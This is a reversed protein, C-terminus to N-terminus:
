LNQHCCRSEAWDKQLDLLINPRTWFAHQTQSLFFCFVKAGNSAQSSLCAHTRILFYNTTCDSTDTKLIVALARRGISAVDPSSSRLLFNWWRHLASPHQQLFVRWITREHSIFNPIKCPFVAAHKDWKRLMQDCALHYNMMFEHIMFWFVRTSTLCKMWSKLNTQTQIRTQKHGSLINRNM